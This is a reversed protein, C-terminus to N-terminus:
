PPEAQFCGLSALAYSREVKGSGRRQPPEHAKESESTLVDAKKGYIPM